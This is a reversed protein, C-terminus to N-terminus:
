AHKEGQAKPIQSEFAQAIADVHRQKSNLRQRMSRMWNKTSLTRPRRFPTTVETAQPPQSHAPNQPRTAAPVNAAEARMLGPALIARLVKVEHRAGDRDAELTEILREADDSRLLLGIKVGALLGVTLCLAAIGILLGSM